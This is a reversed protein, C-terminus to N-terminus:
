SRVLAANRSLLAAYAVPGWGILANQWCDIRDSIKGRKGPNKAYFAFLSSNARNNCVYHSLSNFPIVIFGDTKALLAITRAREAPKEMLACALQPLSLKYQPVEFM